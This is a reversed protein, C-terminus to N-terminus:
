NSLYSRETNLSCLRSNSVRNVAAFHLIQLSPKHLIIVYVFKTVEVSRPRIKLSGYDEMNPSLIHTSTCICTILLVISFRNKFLSLGRWMICNEKIQNGSSRHFIFLLSIVLPVVSRYMTSKGNQCRFYSFFSFRREFM